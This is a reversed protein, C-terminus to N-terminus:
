RAKGEGALLLSFLSFGTKLVSKWVSDDTAEFM